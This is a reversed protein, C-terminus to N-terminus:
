SKGGGTSQWKPMRGKSSGATGKSLSDDIFEKWIPYDEPNWIRRLDKFALDPEWGLRLIRYLTIFGTARYNARCHVLVKRDGSAEMGKIFAHLNEQTPADWEVPVNLYDMGAAKVLSAEDLLDREPDFPALNIVLQVGSAAIETVQDATPM